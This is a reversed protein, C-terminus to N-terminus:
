WLLAAEQRQSDRPTTRVQRDHLLSKDKRHRVPLWHCDCTSGSIHSQRIHIRPVVEELYHTPGLLNMPSVWINDWHKLHRLPGSHAHSNLTLCGTALCHMELLPLTFFFLYVSSPSTIWLKNHCSCKPVTWELKIPTDRPHLLKSLERLLKKGKLEEGETKHPPSLLSSIHSEPPSHRQSFSNYSYCFKQLWYGYGMVDGPEKPRKGAKLFICCVRKSEKKGEQM